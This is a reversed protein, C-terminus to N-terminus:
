VCDSPTTNGNTVFKEIDIKKIEAYLEEITKHGYVDIDVDKAKHGIIKYKAISDMGFKDCLWSFTHRCDHSTHITNKISNTLGLADIIKRVNKGATSKNNFKLYIGNEIYPRIFPHIPIARDKGMETKSGGILVDSEADYVMNVAENIRLGTLIMYWLYQVMEKDKNKYLVKLEEEYFPVGSEPEYRVNDVLYQAYNKEVIDNKLAYAYTKKCVTKIHKIVSPPIDDSDLIKQMDDTVINKIPKNWIPKLWNLGTNYNNLTAKTTKAKPNEFREKHMLDYAEKFTIDRKALDYPNENYKVLAMQADQYTPYYGIAPRSVPTGNDKYETVPPYVAYPNRRNGSLHRIQGFHNPNRKFKKTVRKQQRFKIPFGCHICVNAKDSINAKCEPCTILM